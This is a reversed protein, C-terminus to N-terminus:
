HLRVKDVNYPEVETNRIADMILDFEADSLHTKYLRQAIAMLTGAVLEVPLQHDNLLHMTHEFIDDYCKRSDDM